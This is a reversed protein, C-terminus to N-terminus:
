GMRKYTSYTKASLLIVFYCEQETTAGMTFTGGDVRVMSDILQQLVRKQQATISKSWRPQLAKALPDAVTWSTTQASVVSVYCLAMLFLVLCMKRM